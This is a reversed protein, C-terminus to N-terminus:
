YVFCFYCMQQDINRTVRGGIGTVGHVDLAYRPANVLPKGEGEYVKVNFINLLDLVALTNHTTMHLPANGHVTSIGLLKYRPSFVSLLIAFADDNGPDCDLWIPIQQNTM